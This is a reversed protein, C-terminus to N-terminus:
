AIRIFQINQSEVEFNKVNLNTKLRMPYTNHDKATMKDKSQLRSLHKATNEVALLFKKLSTREGDKCDGFKSFNCRLWMVNAAMTRILTPDIQLFLVQDRRM